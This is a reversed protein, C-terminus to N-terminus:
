LFAAHNSGFFPPTRRLVPAIARDKRFKKDLFMRVNKRHWGLPHDFNYYLSLDGDYFGDVKLHDTEVSARPLNFVALNLFDIMGAHASVWSLTQLAANEDEQPTGFLLYVYTKIGVTNLAQLVNAATVLDIGKEMADLVKQDGSELGLSLMTCGSRKLDAAFAKDGLEERIRAFGYWSFPMKEKSMAALFSPPLANDVFHVYGNAYKRYCKKLHNLVTAPKEPRYRSNEAKEPCFRCRRWYCGRSTVAPVIRGPSLYTEWDVFDFDPSIHETNGCSIGNGYSLVANEGEGEVMIDVIGEFPHRWDPMRMWSTVLGGGLLIKVNKFTHRIWGALAFATLAQSLYCLSIGVYHPSFRAIREKLCQEFYGYFPNERFREASRVLDGSRMCSLERDEYDSLSIRFRRSSVACAALRNIEFVAKKYRDIHRYIRHDKLDALNASRNKLARKSWNADNAPFDANLLWLLGETNADYVSHRVGHRRLAGSLLSLGPPPESPKVVPPFILIM